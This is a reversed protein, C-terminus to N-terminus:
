IDALIASRREDYESQNILGQDLLSKLEQLRSEATRPPPVPPSHQNQRLSAALYTADLGNQTLLTAATAADEDMGADRAVRRATSVRYITTVLGIIIFLVFLGSFWGPIGPGDM